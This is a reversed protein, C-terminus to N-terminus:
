LEHLQAHVDSVATLRMPLCLCPTPPASLVARAPQAQRLDNIALTLAAAVGYHPQGHLLPHQADRRVRVPAPSCNSRSSHAPGLHRHVRPWPPMAKPALTHRTGQTQSGPGPPHPMIADSLM